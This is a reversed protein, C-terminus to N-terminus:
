NGKELYEHVMKTTPLAGNVKFIADTAADYKNKITKSVGLREAGKYTRVGNKGITCVQGIYVGKDSDYYSCPDEEYSDTIIDNVLKALGAAPAEWASTGLLSTLTAGGKMTDQIAEEIQDDTLIHNLPICEHGHRITMDSVVPVMTTDGHGGIVYGGEYDSRERNVHNYKEDAKQVYYALRASDLMGGFGIVRRIVDDGDCKLTLISAVHYSLTDVPNSVIIYLANPAQEHCKTVIDELIGSNVGVLEERTMGPKRPIGSTIIIIDSNKVPTYDNTVGTVETEFGLIFGSQNIDMAKGEALGPKIDVLVVHDVIGMQAINRATTSGVMGAGIISVKKM